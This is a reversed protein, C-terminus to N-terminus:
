SYIAAKLRRAKQLLLTPMLLTKRYYNLNAHTSFLLSYKDKIYTICHRAQEYANEEYFQEVSRACFFSTVVNKDVEQKIELKKTFGRAKRSLLVSKISEEIAFNEVLNNEFTNKDIQFKRYSSVTKSSEHLRFNVLVTDTKEVQDQGWYLLYRLWMEGDMLYHFTDDLPLLPKLTSLRFFTSPQDIHCKGITESLDSMITTGRSIGVEQGQENIRRERGALVYTDSNTFAEGVKFLAEPEYYDDSNLWNFVDGTCKELGKNIAHSQGRDPESVWYTIHKEYKKIIDITNDTSGGDIIIYELNPYNQNIVSLITEEIYEGQNYSPTVISIKPWNKRELHEVSSSPSVWPWKEGKLSNSTM